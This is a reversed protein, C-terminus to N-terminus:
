RHAAAAAAAVAGSSSGGGGSTNSSHTALLSAFRGGRVAALEAPPGMEAVRGHSLVLVSDCDLIAPLEHAVHIVAPRGSDGTHQQASQAPGAMGLQEQLVQPMHM